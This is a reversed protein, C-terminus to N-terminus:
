CRCAFVLTPNDWSWVIRDSRSNWHKMVGAVPMM